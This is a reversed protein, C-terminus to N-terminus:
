EGSRSLDMNLFMRRFAVGILVIFFRPSPIHWLARLIFWGARIDDSVLAASTLLWRNRNFLYRRVNLGKFCVGKKWGRSMRRYMAGTRFFESNLRM